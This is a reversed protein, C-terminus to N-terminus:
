TMVRFEIAIEMENLIFAWTREVTQTIQVWSGAVDQGVASGVM